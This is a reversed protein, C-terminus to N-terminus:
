WEILKTGQRSVESSLTLNDTGTVQQCVLGEKKVDRQSGHETVNPKFVELYFQQFIIM